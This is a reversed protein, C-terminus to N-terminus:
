GHAGEAPKVEGVEMLAEVGLPPEPRTHALDQQGVELLQVGAAARPVEDEEAAVEGLSAGGGLERAEVLGELLEPIM